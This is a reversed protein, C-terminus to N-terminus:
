AIALLQLEFTLKEGALPHNADLTVTNGQVGLVTLIAVSGDPQELQFHMGTEPVIHEPFQLRDVELILEDMRQGYGEDPNLIAVKQEGIKMGDVAKEIGPLMKGDGLVFELPQEDYSCAFVNGDQTLGKFHVTVRDGKKAQPM